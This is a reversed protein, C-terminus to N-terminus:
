QLLEVEVEAVMILFAMVLELEVLIEKRHVQLLLIELVALVVQLVVELVAVELVVLM